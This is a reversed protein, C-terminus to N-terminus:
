KLFVLETAGELETTLNPHFVYGEPHTFETLLDLALKSSGAVDPNAVLHRVLAGKLAKSWHSVTVLRGGKGTELFKVTYRISCGIKSADWAASHENPLLDWIVGYDATTALSKTVMPKWIAACTMNRRLKAGMKLKYKPILDFPRVAGFLGSMIIINQDFCLKEAENLSQYDIADYMVGTYREIAPLTPTSGLEVNDILAKELAVGKVGLLNQAVLPKRSLQGLAKIM